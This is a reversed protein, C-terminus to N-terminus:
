STKLTKKNQKKIKQFRLGIIGHSCQGLRSLEVRCMGIFIFWGTNITTEENIDSDWRNAWQLPLCITVVCRSVGVEWQAVVVFNMIELSNPQDSLDQGCPLQTTVFCEYCFRGSLIIIKVVWNLQSRRSKQKWALQDNLGCEVCLFHGHKVFRM